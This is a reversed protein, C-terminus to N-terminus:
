LSIQPGTLGLGAAKRGKDGVVWGRMQESGTESEESAQACESGQGVRPRSCKDGAAGCIM